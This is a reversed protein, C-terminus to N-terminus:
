FPNDDEFPDFSHDNTVPVKSYDNSNEDLDSFLTFESEFRMRSRFVRGNRNKAVIYEAEGACPAGDYSDWQDNGYYEPRYLFIVVDADQEIAGSERLDSLQPRKDNRSELARSLQSLAIIPIDLNKAVLKLGRSIKSVEQERVKGNGTMLQLYDVVILGINHKAKMRKAKIQFEEISLSASDDIILPISKLEEGVEKLNIVDSSSLGHVTFKQGDIRGEMSIIRNTLQEKSMELSFFATPVKSKAINLASLLAFATKGMGPRAALIILESNRWGGTKKTLKPIPTELGPKIEGEYIKRGKAIQMDVLDSFNSERNKISVESVNNLNSYANELLELSDSGDDYCKKIISQSNSILRRAIYKQILIHAHHEIHASSAIKKALEILYFDGGASELKGTRKLEQSITLLDIPSNKIYLHQAAKYIEVHAPKYFIKPDTLIEAVEMMGKQDVLIVGLVAEELEVAQPMTLGIYHNDKEM